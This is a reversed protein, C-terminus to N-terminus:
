PLSTAAAHAPRAVPRRGLRAPTSESEAAPPAQALEAATAPAPQALESAIRIQWAESAWSLRAVTYSAAALWAVLIVIPITWQKIANM